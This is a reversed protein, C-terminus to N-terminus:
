FGTEQYNLFQKRLLNIFGKMYEPLYLNKNYILEISSTHDMGEIQFCKLPNHRFQTENLLQIRNLMIQNCFCAGCNKATLLIQTDTDSITLTHKLVLGKDDLFHKMIRYLRSISPSFIFPVDSFQELSVANSFSRHNPFYQKLLDASIVLYTKTDMLHVKEMELSPKVNVGLFMDISGELLMKELNDAEEHIVSLSVDPFEKQYEVLLDPMIIKARTSHMGVRLQGRVGEKSELLEARMINEIRKIQQLRYVMIEGAKTLALHPKREFLRVGHETELRKIQDSFAQQTIFVRRAAKSISKEEAAILFYELSNKM